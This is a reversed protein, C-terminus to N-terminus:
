RPTSGGPSPKTAPTEAQYIFPAGGLIGDCIVDLGASTGAKLADLGPVSVRYPPWGPSPAALELPIMRRFFFHYAYRNAREVQEPDLRRGIPLRDLLAVYEGQTRADFTLGKGRIWAEGAVIVPIGASVLEVGMKTGYIIASDCRQMAAYTSIASEPGIAFVNRPLTPFERSIEALMPQRSPITGRLEAPHIRILLQLEPRTAFYRITEILWSRMDPFARAPYHLQADWFVNTLLGVVPRNSDLGLASLAADPQLDPREHFWIWDASGTWRSALYESTRRALEPNWRVSEWASVPEDLLTRHYSDGHSFIFSHRRYAPNWNVVRVGRQRAVEGFPGQPVYIGHHFLACDYRERGLLREAAWASQLAARLYTRLVAEGSPEEDLTGRAFFRLTGARAHEGVHVGEHEFTELEERSLADVLRRARDHDAPGLLEGFRIVPLGLPALAHAAPGFCHRCLDDRSGREVFRERSAYWNEEAAMCAPLIGDCLLFEVRAGRLTLAVALASELQTAAFQLGVNTPILVRPGRAAHRAADWAVKERGLLASWDAHGTRRAKWALHALRFPRLLPSRKLRYRSTERM